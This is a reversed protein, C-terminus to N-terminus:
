SHFLKLFASFEKIFIAVITGLFVEELDMSAALFFKM